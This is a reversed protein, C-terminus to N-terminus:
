ESARVFSANTYSTPYKLRVLEHKNKPDIFPTYSMVIKLPHKDWECDIFIKITGTDWEIWKTKTNITISMRRDVDCFYIRHTLYQFYYKIFSSGYRWGNGFKIRKTMDSVTCNMEEGSMHESYEMVNNSKNFDAIHTKIVRYRTIKGFLRERPFYHVNHITSQYKLVQNYCVDRVLRNVLSLNVIDHITLYRIVSHVVFPTIM